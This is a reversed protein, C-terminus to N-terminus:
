MIVVAIFNLIDEQECQEGCVFCMEDKLFLESFENQQIKSTIGKFPDM